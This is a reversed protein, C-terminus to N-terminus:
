LLHSFVGCGDTGGPCVNANFQVVSLFHGFNEHLAGKDDRIAFLIECASRRTAMAFTGPQKRERALLYIVM